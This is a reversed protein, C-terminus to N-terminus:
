QIAGGLFGRLDSVVAATWETHVTMTDPPLMGALRLRDLVLGKLALESWVPTNAPITQPVALATLPDFDLSLWSSWLRVDVDNAKTLLEAQLTCQVLLLPLGSRRDPFPRWAVVDVGGDRRRPQRYGSGVSLGLRDALWEIAQPFQAPRGDESPYGFRLARGQEGWLNACAEATLKEFLIEMASSTEQAVSQRAVGGSTLLLLAAYPSALAHQKARVAVDMVHFPYHSGLTDARRRMTTLALNVAAADAGVVAKALEQTADLGLQTTGRCLLTTELWDAIREAGKAVLMSASM